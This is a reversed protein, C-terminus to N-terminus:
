SGMYPQVKDQLTIMSGAVNSVITLDFPYKTATRWQGGALPSKYVNQVIHCPGVTWPPGVPEVPATFDLPGAITELKTAKVATMIANKDDVNTTRKLVDVAWELVVFHLLPQTWQENQKAEYDAAFEQCTQNLLGSTFPHNPSWWVECTLGNAISGLADVSQPFLLCKAWTAVKPRWGQQASQKWFNTFDPPIFIGTGVECGAKKFKGIQTTFDETGDQFGSGDTVTYGAAEWTPIYIPRLANGDADNPYMAGLAKNTSVQSFIDLYTAAQDEAGWFVHYTWDFVRALDGAARSGVYSQWPCDATLCPTENAECQDAVPNCTDPTSAALVIDVKDNNILDGTVQGARQVDSQSDRTIITVPHKQGDGCIIGDGIAEQARSVCYKDPVGFSALGGTLPAVFGIKIERGTQVASVTTTSAAATTATAGTTTTPGATTTTATDGCAALLGGLGAGAGVAAGAVGAIKLFERRSFSKGERM